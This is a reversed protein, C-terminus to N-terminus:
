NETISIVAKLFTHRESLFHCFFTFIPVMQHCFYKLLIKSSHWYGASTQDMQSYVPGVLMTQKPHQLNESVPGNKLHELHCWIASNCLVAFAHINM